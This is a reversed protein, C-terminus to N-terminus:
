IDGVTTSLLTDGEMVWDPIEGGDSSSYAAESNAEPGPTVEWDAEVTADMKHQQQQRISPKSGRSAGDKPPMPPKPTPKKWVGIADADIEILGETNTRERSAAM